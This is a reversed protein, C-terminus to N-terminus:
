RVSCRLAGRLGTTGSYGKGKGPRQLSIWMWSTDYVVSLIFYTISNRSEGMSLTEKRKVPPANCILFGEM